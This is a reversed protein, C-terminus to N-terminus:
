QGIVGRWKRTKTTAFPDERRNLPNSKDALHMIRKVIESRHLSRMSAMEMDENLPFHIINPIIIVYYIIILKLTFRIM